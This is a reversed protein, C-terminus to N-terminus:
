RWYVLGAITEALPNAGIQRWAMIQILSPKRHVQGDSVCETFDSEFHLLKWEALCM